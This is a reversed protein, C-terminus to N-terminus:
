PWPDGRCARSKPGPTESPTARRRVKSCHLPTSPIWEAAVGSLARSCGQRGLTTSSRPTASKWSTGTAPSPASLPRPRPRRRPRVVSTATDVPRAGPGLPEVAALFAHLEEDVDTLRREHTITKPLKLIFRFDPNTQEAWSAVTDLAPTAYFTTNGEVANCWSAYDSLRQQPSLSHALYRGQWSPYTWMACGVHLEM